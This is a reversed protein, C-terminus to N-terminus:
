FNRRSENKVEKVSLKGAKKDSEIFKRITACWGRDTRKMKPNMESWNLVAQIYYELDVTKYKRYNPQNNFYKALTNINAYKSEAFIHRYRLAQYEHPGAKGTKVEFVRNVIHPTYGTLDSIRNITNNQEQTFVEWIHNIEHDSMMNWNNKKKVSPFLDPGADELKNKSAM